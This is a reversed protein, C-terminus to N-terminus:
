RVLTNVSIILNNKKNKLESLFNILEDNNM